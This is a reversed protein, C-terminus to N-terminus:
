LPAESLKLELLCLLGAQIKQHYNQPYFRDCEQFAQRLGRKQEALQEEQQKPQRKINEIFVQNNNNEM